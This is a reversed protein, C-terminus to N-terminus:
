GATLSALAETDFPDMPGDPRAAERRAAIAQRRAEALPAQAYLFATHWIAQHSGRTVRRQVTGRAPLVIWDRSTVIDGAGGPARWDPRCRVVIGVLTGTASRIVHGTPRHGDARMRTLAWHRGHRALEHAFADPLRTAEVYAHGDIPLRLDYREPMGQAHVPRTAAPNLFVTM